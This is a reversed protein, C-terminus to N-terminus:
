RVNIDTSLKDAPVVLGDPQCREFGLDGRELDRERVTPVGEPKVVASDAVDDGASLVLWMLEVGDRDM